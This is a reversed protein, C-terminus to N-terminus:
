LGSSKSIMDHLLLAVGFKSQKKRGGPKVVRDFFRTGRFFPNPHHFLYRYPSDLLDTDPYHKITEELFLKWHDKKFVKYLMRMYAVIERAVAEEVRRRSLFIMEFDFFLFQGDDM